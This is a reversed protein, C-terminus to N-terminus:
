KLIKEIPTFPMSFADAVSHNVVHGNVINLGNELHPHKKCANQWGINALEIAYDITANTLAKTSTQPVAGPMNAVAYHLIDDVVYTPNEHTTTHTTEFCGGQDVAVDVLVAGKQM